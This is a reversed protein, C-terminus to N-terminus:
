TDTVNKKFYGALVVPKGCMTMYTIWYVLGQLCKISMDGYIYGGRTGTLKAKDTSWKKAYESKWHIISDTNDYGELIPTGYKAQTLYCFKDLARVLDQYENACVQHFVQNSAM